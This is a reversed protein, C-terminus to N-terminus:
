KYFRMIYEFGKAEEDLLIPTPLIARDDTGFLGPYLYDIRYSKLEKGESYFKSVISYDCVSLLSSYNGGPGNQWKRWSALVGTDLLKTDSIDKLAFSGEHLIHLEFTSDGSDTVFIRVTRPAGNQIRGRINDFAMSLFSKVVSTYTYFARGKVSDDVSAKFDSNRFTDVITDEFDSDRFEILHKFYEILQEMNAITRKNSLGYLGKPRNGVPFASMPVEAMTRGPHSEMWSKIVGVPFQLGVLLNERPISYDDDVGLIFNKLTYNLGINYFYLQNFTRDGKLENTIKEIFSDYSDFDGEDWSHLVYRLVPDSSFRKLFDCVVRPDHIWKKQVQENVEKVQSQGAEKQDLEDRIIQRTQELIGNEIDATILSIVRERDKQTLSPDNLIAFMFSNKDM